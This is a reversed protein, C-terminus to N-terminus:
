FDVGILQTFNSLYYINELKAQANFYLRGAQRGSTLIFGGDSMNQTNKFFGFINIIEHTIWALEVKIKM